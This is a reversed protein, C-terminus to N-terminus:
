PQHPSETFPPTTTRWRPPLRTHARCVDDDDEADDGRDTEVEGVAEV